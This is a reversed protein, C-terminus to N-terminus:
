FLSGNEEFQWENCEATEIFCEESDQAESEEELLRMCVDALSEFAEKLTDGSRVAKNLAEIYSEDACYGTFPCPHILGPRYYTGYKRVSDRKEGKWPIRFQGYLNNELWAIARAGNLEETEYRSDHNSFQIKIFNGRDYAGLSWDKLTIGAARLLAKLSDITEDQWPIDDNSNRYNELAREFAEPFQDKLERVNYTTVTHTKM